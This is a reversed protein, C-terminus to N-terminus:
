PAFLAPSRFRAVQQRRDVAPEGLAEVGGVQLVGCFEQGLHCSAPSTISIAAHSRPRPRRGIHEVAGIRQPVRPVTSMFILLGRARSM